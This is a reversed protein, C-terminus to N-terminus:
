KHKPRQPHRAQHRQYAQMAASRFCDSTFDDNVSGSVDSQADGKGAAAAAVNWEWQQMGELICDVNFPEKPDLGPLTPWRASAIHLDSSRQLSREVQIRRDILMGIVLARPPASVTDLIQEADPSLYILLQQTLSPNKIHSSESVDDGSSDPLKNYDNAYDQLSQKSFYLNSPFDLNSRERRWIEKMRELLAAQVGDENCDVLVVHALRLKINYKVKSNAHSSYTEHQWSLFNVLQKAIALMKEKRPRAEKPFGYGLDCLLLLPANDDSAKRSQDITTDNTTTLTLQQRLKSALTEDSDDAHQPSSEVQDTMEKDNICDSAHDSEAENM